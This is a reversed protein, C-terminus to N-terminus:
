NFTWLTVSSIDKVLLRNGSVVPQAWTASEAVTYRMLPEFATGSARAVVLEADDELALWVNGARVVAANGAQRGPSVWLTKGGEADIAFFQGSNRPSFGFLTRGIVVGTSMDMAVDPNEWVDDTTWQNGRKSVTFAIVNKDLGSVIVTQGHLVPTVANRTARVSFPRRWLLAGNSADVGVLSEQTLTIVQRTGGFEAVIPSGYAPGDGNWSWKVDGTNADFATLAGNNHGGVHLIVLGRDVLPSMATHYLPETPPAPKQWLQKGTAADFASVVGSMGLTYLKGNSFTPTSKPGTGHTRTAAQNPKFPAPYSAEWVVKGTAIDLARLVENPEQRSFAYVRSGVTIPAAYGLGVDVKWRLVLREPWKAPETFGTAAGDRNPGRWQPWDASGSQATGTATLSLAVLAGALTGQITTV